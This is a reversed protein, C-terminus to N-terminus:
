PLDIVVRNTADIARIESRGGEVGLEVADFRVPLKDIFFSGAHCPVPAFGLADAFDRGIFSIFLEPHAACTTTSAPQGSVTWTTTIARVSSPSACMRDRACVDGGGCDRDEFCEGSSYTAAPCGGLLALTAALVPARLMPLDRGWRQDHAHIM